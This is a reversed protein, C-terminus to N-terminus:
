LGKYKLKLQLILKAWRLWKELTMIENTMQGVKVFNDVILTTQPLFFVHSFFSNPNIYKESLVTNIDLLFFHSVHEYDWFLQILVFCFKSQRSKPLTCTNYLCMLSPNPPRFSIRIKSIHNPPPRSAFHKYQKHLPDFNKNVQFHSKDTFYSKVRQGFAM